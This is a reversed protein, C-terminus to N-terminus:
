QKEQETSSNTHSNLDPDPVGARMERFPAKKIQNKTGSMESSGERNFTSSAAHPQIRDNPNHGEEILMAKEILEVKSLKEQEEKFTKEKRKQQM